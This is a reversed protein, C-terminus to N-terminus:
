HWQHDVPHRQNPLSSRKSARAGRQLLESLQPEFAKKIEEIKQIKFKLM